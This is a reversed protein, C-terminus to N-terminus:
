VSVCVCMCTCECVNLLCLLDSVVSRESNLLFVACVSIFLAGLVAMSFRVILVLLGGNLDSRKLLTLTISILEAPM